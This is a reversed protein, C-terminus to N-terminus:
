EFFADIERVFAGLYEMKEALHNTFRNFDLKNVITNLRSKRKTYDHGVLNYVHKLDMSPRDRLEMNERKPNFGLNQEIFEPTLKESMRRFHTYEGLFWAETEMVALSIHTRAKKQPLKYNLGFILKKIDTREFNPYVDRLGLIREYGNKVLSDRQTLIYSKVNTEGGCDFILVYYDTQNTINAAVLVTFSIRVNHGGTIKITQIAIKKRDLLAELMRKVLLQETLGEVFIALKKM